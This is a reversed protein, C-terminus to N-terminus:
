LPRQNKLLEHQQLLFGASMLSRSNARGRLVDFSVREHNALSLNTKQRSAAPSHGCLLPKSYKKQLEQKILVSEM